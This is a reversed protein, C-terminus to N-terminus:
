FVGVQIMVASQGAMRDAPQSALTRVEEQRRSLMGGSEDATYMLSPPITALMEQRVM